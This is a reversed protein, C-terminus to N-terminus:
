AHAVLSTLDPIPEIGPGAARAAEITSAYPLTTGNAYMTPVLFLGQWSTSHDRIDKLCEVHDDVFHTLGLNAFVRGKGSPGQRTRCFHMNDETM